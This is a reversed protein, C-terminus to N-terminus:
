TCICIIYNVMARATMPYSGDVLTQVQAKLGRALSRSFDQPIILVVRVLGRNLLRSIEREDQLYYKLEFYRSDVFHSIYDRSTPTRDRDYVATPVEEVDLTFSYSFIFLLFLPLIIALSLFYPDRKSEIFEKKIIPIIRSKM